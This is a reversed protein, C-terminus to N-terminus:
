LQTESLHTHKFHDNYKLGYGLLRDFSAHSLLVLGIAVLVDIHLFYGILSLSVALGKHHFLNYAIAGIRTNIIYGLMGLDPAFFLFFWIWASLGLNYITLFYLAVLFMAIEELKIILKM